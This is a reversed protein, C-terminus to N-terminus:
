ITSLVKFSQKRQGVNGRLICIFRGQYERGLWHCVVVHIWSAMRGITCIDRAGESYIIQRNVCDRPDNKTLRIQQREPDVMSRATSREMKRGLGALSLWVSLCIKVTYLPNNRLLFGGGWLPQVTEKWTLPM